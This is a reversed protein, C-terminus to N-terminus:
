FAIFYTGRTVADLSHLSRRHKKRIDHEQIDAHRVQIAILRGSHDALLGPALVNQKDSQGSPTLFLIPAATLGRTKIDVESLRHVILSQQLQESGRPFWCP